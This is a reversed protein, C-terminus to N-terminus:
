RSSARARTAPAHETASTCPASDRPDLDCGPNVDHGHSDTAAHVALRGRRPDAITLSRVPHHGFIVVLKGDAAAADLEATLWQFQPDDINGDAPAVQRRRRGGLQHRDLHLPLGADAPPDWAYYSASATRLGANEAPDVFGFGHDDDGGTSAGYIAKIQPKDVFQRQPDPPVLM